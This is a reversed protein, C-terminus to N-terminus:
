NELLPLQILPEREILKPEEAILEVGLYSLDHNEITYMKTDFVSTAFKHSKIAFLSYPCIERPYFTTTIQLKKKTDILDFTQTLINLRNTFDCPNTIHLKIRIQGSTLQLFAKFNDIAHDNTMQIWFTESINTKIKLYFWNEFIQYEKTIKSQITEEIMFHFILLQESKIGVIRFNDIEQRFYKKLLAIQSKTLEFSISDYIYDVMYNSRKRENM